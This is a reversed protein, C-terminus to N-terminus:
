LVFRAEVSCRNKEEDYAKRDFFLKYDEEIWSDIEDMTKESPDAMEGAKIMPLNLEFDDMCQELWAGCGKCINCRM